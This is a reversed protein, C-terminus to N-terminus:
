FRFLYSWSALFVANWLNAQFYDLFFIGYMLSIWSIWRWQLHPNQEIWGAALSGLGAAGMASLSLISM